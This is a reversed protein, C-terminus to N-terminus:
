AEAPKAQKIFVPKPQQVKGVRLKEYHNRKEALKLFNEFAEKHHFPHARSHSSLMANENFNVDTGTRTSEGYNLDRLMRIAVYNNIMAPEGWVQAVCWRIFQENSLDKPINQNPEIIRPPSDWTQEWSKMQITDLYNEWVKATRDYNYYKQVRMWADRGLKQRIAKPKNLFKALKDAFDQNRPLARESNTGNDWFMRDIDIPIGSLNKVVSEMASYNVAMVPVACAAAEVQPMGFGECVSYQVYMDFFNYVAGMEQDSLGQRTNPLHCSPTGCRNCIARADQFFAPFVLGCNSCRYTFLVRNSVGARRLFFPIDWGSDPFSTHVYLYTNTALTPNQDLFLRFADFLDPYLKRPQNRMVTGVVNINNTFGFRQRHEERNQVPKLIELNAGPSAVDILKIKGNGEQRLVDMGYESYNFVADAGLYTNLWQEQQPASDVTPMIAWHFFRRYPSREVFEMMWWDRIDIVVDPRFDLCVQEFRWEGFQNNIHANYEGVAGHEPLNAYYRWPLEFRKPNDIEGYCGLEAIDYKGTKYLRKLVEKGYVAYGTNLFSAENVMLIRLKRSM